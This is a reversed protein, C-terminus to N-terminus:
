KKYTRKTMNYINKIIKITGGQKSMYDLGKKIEKLM